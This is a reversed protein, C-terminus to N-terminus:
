EQFEPPLPRLAPWAAFFFYRLGASLFGVPIALQIPWIPMDFAQARLGAQMSSQVYVWGYWAVGCFFLGTVVDAIRNMTPGFAAPVWGFGLRPLLHSGTATAVGVGCFSGIVLAYVCMKQAAFIGPSGKLDFAKYIPGLLERGAVDLILVVAIFGFAAVAILCEVRHWGDVLRRAGAPAPAAVSSM